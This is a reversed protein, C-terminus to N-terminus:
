MDMALASGVVVLIAGPLFTLEPRLPHVQYRSAVEKKTGILEVLRVLDPLMAQDPLTLVGPFLVQYSFPARFGLYVPTVEEKM